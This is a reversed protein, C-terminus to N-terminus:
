ELVLLPTKTTSLAQEWVPSLFLEEPSATAPDSSTFFFREGLEPQEAEQLAEETWRKLTAALDFSSCLVAIALAPTQFLEQHIPSAAYHAYTRIKQKFRYERLHTRYYEIHFFEQWKGQIIFDLAADPELCLQHTRGEGMPPAATLYIKRKLERELYLRNLMIAPNHKTLLRAAILVDTVAITHKLFYLNRAKEKEEAARVRRGPTMGMAEAVTYGEGALTYVAPLTALQRPLAMVVRAAILLRLKKRVFSLSSVSYCLRAIQLATLHDFAALACLIKETGKTPTLVTRMGCCAKRSNTDADPQCARGAM